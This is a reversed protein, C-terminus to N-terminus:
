EPDPLTAPRPARRQRNADHDDQCPQCRWKGPIPPRQQCDECLEITSASWPPPQPRTSPPAGGPPDTQFARYPAQHPLRKGSPRVQPYGESRGSRKERFRCRYRNTRRRWRGTAPDHHAAHATIEVLEAAVLETLRNRITRECVDLRAAMWRQSPQAAQRRVAFSSLVALLEVAGGSVRGVAHVVLRNRVARNV